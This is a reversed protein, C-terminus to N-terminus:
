VKGRRVELQARIEAMKEPTLGFRALAFMAFLLGAIPIISFFLRINTLAGAVQNGGLEAKFGTLALVLGSAGIGLALGVKMIWTGCSTFAGERRKGTELEDYDIVDPGMAGYLMWFGGQTCAILGSALPQLWPFKPNYLWWSGVFVLISAVQVILMAARKGHHKAIWAFIPIGSVGLLMSSIGMLFNWKSGLAVDGGCVYYITMYLGLAGVMSTGLGYSLAMAIQARFPRCKLCKWIGEALKVETQKTVLKEYYREKVVSFVIIGVVIMIAGLIATYVKAGLLIDPKGSADNFVSLTVFAAAFYMGLEAVKQMISRISFVSTREHYDPTLENGLSNWPISFSAVVCIYIASSGAMYWFYNSIVLDRLDVQWAYFGLDLNWHLLLNVQTSGWGPTVFVLVPLLLGALISGVLIFPRRRGWKTRTNDSWWGFLPDAFVDALRNCMLAVSVLAPSVHLFINFVPWVLSPYLWSGWMENTTGLGYAIKQAMPVRDEQKTAGAQITEPQAEKM